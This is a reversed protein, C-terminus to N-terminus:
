ILTRFTLNIRGQSIGKRKPLAHQWHQQTPPLMLLLSGSELRLKVTNRPPRNPKMCFDREAGVSISAICPAPGLEPENDSHYGMCDHGDRYYNLLACNFDFGTDLLLQDRVVKVCEPWPESCHSVGSYQYSLGSDGVFSLLRPTVHQRGFVTVKPQQWSVEDHLRQYLKAPNAIYRPYYDLGGGVLPIHQTDWLM